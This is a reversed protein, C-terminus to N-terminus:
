CPLTGELSALTGTGIGHVCFDNNFTLLDGM